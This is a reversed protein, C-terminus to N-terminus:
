GQNMSEEGQLEVLSEAKDLARNLSHLVNMFAASHADFKKEALQYKVVLDRFRTMLEACNTRATETEDIREKGLRQMELKIQHAEGRVFSDKQTLAKVANTLEEKKAKLDRLRSSYIERAREHQKVEEEVSATLRIAEDATQQRRRTAENLLSKVNSEDQELLSIQVHFDGLKELEAFREALLKAANEIMTMCEANDSIRQREAKCDEQLRKINTRLTEAETRLEEPSDVIAKKLHEIESQLSKIEESLKAGEEKRDKISKLVADRKDENTKSEKILETLITHKSNYEALLANEKRKRMDRESRLTNKRQEALRIQEQGDEVAKRAENYEGSTKEFVQSATRYFTAYDAMVSFLKRTRKPAPNILDCMTFDADADGFDMVFCRMTTYLLLLPTSRHQIEATEPNFQCEFPLEVLCKEPVDLVQTCFAHYIAQVRDASPHTIDETSAGVQLFSLAEVISRPDLVLSTM